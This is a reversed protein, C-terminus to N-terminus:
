IEYGLIRIEDRLSYHTSETIDGYASQSKQTKWGYAQGRKRNEQSYQSVLRTPNTLEQTITADADMARGAVEEWPIMAPSEIIDEYRVLTVPWDSIGQANAVWSNAFISLSEKISVPMIHTERLHVKAGPARGFALFWDVELFEGQSIPFAHRSRFFEYFSIMIDRPDRLLLTVGTPQYTDEGLIRLEDRFYGPSIAHSKLNDPPSDPRRQVYFSRTSLSFIQRLLEQLFNSGSRPYSIVFTCPTVTKRTEPPPHHLIRKVFRKLM